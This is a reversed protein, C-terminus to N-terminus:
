GNRTFHLAASLVKVEYGSGKIGNFRKLAAAVDGREQRLYGSLVKAGCQINTEPDYLDVHSKLGCDKKHWGYIVQMLGYSACKDESWKKRKCLDPEFNVATEDFKSEVMIVGEILGRPLQYSSRAEEIVDSLTRPTVRIHTAPSDGILDPEAACGVTMLFLTALLRKM